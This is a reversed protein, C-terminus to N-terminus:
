GCSPKHINHLDVCGQEGINNLDAEISGDFDQNRSKVKPLTGKDKHFSSPLGIFGRRKREDAVTGGAEVLTDQSVYKSDEKDISLQKDIDDLGEDVSGGFDNQRPKIKPLIGKRFSSTLGIFRKKKKEEVVTTDTLGDQNFYEADEAAAPSKEEIDDLGEDISGQFDNQRIRIKSLTGRDKRFSSGLGIFRRKKKEETVIETTGTLTDQSAYRAGDKEM